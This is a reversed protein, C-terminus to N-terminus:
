RVSRTGGVNKGVNAAITWLLRCPLAATTAVLKKRVVRLPARVKGVFMVKKALIKASAVTNTM